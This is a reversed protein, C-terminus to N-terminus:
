SATEITSQKPKTYYAWAMIQNPTVDGNFYETLWRRFSSKQIGYEAIDMALERIEEDTDDLEGALENIVLQDHKWRNEDRVGAHYGNGYGELQILGDYYTTYAIYRELVNDISEREDAPLKRLEELKDSGIQWKPTEM